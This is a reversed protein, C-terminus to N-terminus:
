KSIDLFFRIKAGFTSFLVYHYCVGGSPHASLPPASGASFLTKAAPPLFHFIFCLSLMRGGIPRASLPPECGPTFGFIDRTHLVHVVEGSLINRFKTQLRNVWGGDVACLQCLVSCLTPKDVGLMVEIDAPNVQTVENTFDEFAGHVTLRVKLRELFPHAVGVALPCVFAVVSQRM